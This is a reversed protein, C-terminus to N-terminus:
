AAQPLDALLDLANQTYIKKEHCTIFRPPKKLDEMIGLTNEPDCILRAINCYRMTSDVRVRENTETFLDGSYLARMMLDISAKRVRSQEADVGVGSPELVYGCVDAFGDFDIRPLAAAQAHAPASKILFTLIQKTLSVDQTAEILRKLAEYLRKKENSSANRFSEKSFQDRFFPLWKSDGCEEDLHQMAAGAKYASFRKLARRLSTPQDRPQGSESIHDYLANHLSAVVDYCDFMQTLLLDQERNNALEQAETMAPEARRREYAGRLHRLKALVVEAIELPRDVKALDDVSQAV